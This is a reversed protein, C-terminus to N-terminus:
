NKNVPIKQKTHRSNYKNEKYVIVVIFINFRLYSNLNVFCIHVPSWWFVNHACHRDFAKNQVLTVPKLRYAENKFSCPCWSMKYKTFSILFNYIRCDNCKLPVLAIVLPCPPLRRQQRWSTDTIWRFSGFNHWANYGNPDTGISVHDAGRRPLTNESSKPNGKPTFDDVWM